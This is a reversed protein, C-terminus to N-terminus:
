GAYSLSDARGLGRRAIDEEVRAPLLGLARAAAVYVDTGPFSYSADFDIAGNLEIVVFRDSGLPLLDVGVLDADIAAAATAALEAAVDPVGAPQSTGGCSINTRWEDPAARREIAGVVCGGAVLVRLDVGESPVEEQVLVGHRLYWSQERAERLYEAVDRTTVCRRVGAGWSGFRPKLVFPLATRIEEGPHALMTRPHPILATALLRATRWKDHAALLAAAPNRVKLGRRELLLLELLGPEIGDLSKAVDLRGLVVDGTRLCAATGPRVLAADVGLARWRRVLEVTGENSESGIVAITPM